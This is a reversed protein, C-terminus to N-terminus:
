VSQYKSNLVIIRDKYCDLSEGGVMRLNHLETRLRLRTSASNVLYSERLFTWALASNGDFQSLERAKRITDTKMALSRSFLGFAMRNKTTFERLDRIYQQYAPEDHDELEPEEPEEDLGNVLDWCDMIRLEIEIQTLWDAEKGTVLPIRTVKVDIGPNINDM